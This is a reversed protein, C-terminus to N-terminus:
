DRNPAAKVGVRSLRERLDPPVYTFHILYSKSARDLPRIVKAYLESDGETWPGEEFRLMINSYGPLLEAAEIIARQHSLAILAGKRMREDLHKETLRLYGFPIYRPLPECGSDDDALSLQPYEEHGLLERCIIPERMGKAHVEIEEGLILGDGAASVFAPSVLIQRGVSYSEIRATLNVNRGIVSYTTRKTSGINGIVTEGTHLAIGMEIEPWGMRLNYSNVEQMSKQMELACLAARRGADEVVLPAGFLTLISDGTIANITGRWKQTQEVMVSLYNNLLAVVDHPELREALATFGRLDSLLVTVERKEGGLKLGDPMDLLAEVIEDSMYRGFTERIFRNRRELEKFSDKLQQTMSNFAASFAGMFDIKQDLDGAAIQQTKWTIHKLNSQLSKFSSVVGMRGLLPRTDLTGEAIQEMAKAFPAFEALFRNVFTILQRIENDPLEDPIHIPAPVKGARIYHFIATIEDILTEEVSIM